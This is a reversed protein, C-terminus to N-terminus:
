KIEALSMRSQSGYRSTFKMRLEDDKVYPNIIEVDEPTFSKDNNYVEFPTKGNLYELPM